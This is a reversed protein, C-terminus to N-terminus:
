DSSKIQERKEKRRKCAAKVRDRECARCLTTSKAFSDPGKMQTCKPCRRLQEEGVVAEIARPLSSRIANKIEGSQMYATLSVDLHDEDRNVTIHVGESEAVLNALRQWNRREPSVAEVAAEDWQGLCQDFEEESALALLEVTNQGVPKKTPEIQLIKDRQSKRLRPSTLVRVASPGFTRLASMQVPLKALRMAEAAITPSHPFYIALWERFRGHRL